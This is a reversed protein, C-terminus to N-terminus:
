RSHPSVDSNLLHKNKGLRAKRVLLMLILYTGATWILLSTIQTVHLSGFYQIVSEWLSLETPVTPFQQHVGIAEHTNKKVAEFIAAATRNAPDALKVKNFATLANNGHVDSGSICALNNAICFAQIAPDRPNGSNAVEFGDVGWERLETYAYPAAGPSAYHNVVVYGGHSKVYQIADSVNLELVGDPGGHGLPVIVQEIGYFNCHINSTYEQGIIVTFNLHNNEVYQMAELAGATTHHDTFAAIHIGQQMYWQVRGAPTLRGDSYLTHAHFDILFEGEALPTNIRSRPLLAYNMGFGLLAVLAAFEIVIKLERATVRLGLLARNKRTAMRVRFASIHQRVKQFPHWGAHHAVRSAPPKRLRYVQYALSVGVVIFPVACMFSIIPYYTLSFNPVRADYQTYIFLAPGVLVLISLWFGNDIGRAVARIWPHQLLRGHYRVRDVFLVVVRTVAYLFLFGLYEVPQMSQILNNLGLIPELLVQIPSLETTYHDNVFTQGVFDYYNITFTSAFFLWVLGAIALGSIVTIVLPLTQRHFFSLKNGALTVGTSPSSGEM